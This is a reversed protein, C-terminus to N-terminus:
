LDVERYLAHVALVNMQVVVLDHIVVVVNWVLDLKLHHRVVFLARGHGEIRKSVGQGGSTSVSVDLEPTELFHLLYSADVQGGLSAAGHCVGQVSLEECSAASVVFNRQVFHSVAVLM